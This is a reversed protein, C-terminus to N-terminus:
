NEKLNSGVFGNATPKKPIPYIGCWTAPPSSMLLSNPLSTSHPMAKMVDFSQEAFLNLAADGEIFRINFAQANKRAETLMSACSDVGITEFGLRALEIALFGPGCGMDLARKNLNSENGLYQNLLNRYVSEPNSLEESTSLSYGQARASWYRQVAEDLSIYQSNGSM